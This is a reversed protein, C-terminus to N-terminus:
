RRGSCRRRSTPRCTTPARSRTADLLAREPVAQNFWAEFDRRVDPSANENLALSASTHQILLHLLGVTLRASSRCRASPARRTVLHFGRPRPSPAHDRAPGVDSSPCARSGCTSGSAASRCGKPELLARQRRARPWRATPASSGTGRCRQITALRSAGRGAVRPAGPSVDGYTRVFGDPTARVRDLIQRTLVDM